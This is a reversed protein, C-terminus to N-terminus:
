RRGQLGSHRHSDGFRCPVFGSSLRQFFLGSLFAILMGVQLKGGLVFSLERAMDGKRIFEEGPMLYKEHLKVMLADLFFNNCGFFAGGRVCSKDVVERYQANAVKVALSRPLSVFTSAKNRKAKQRQFKFHRRMGEVLDQPFSRLRLLVVIVKPDPIFTPSCRLIVRSCYVFM